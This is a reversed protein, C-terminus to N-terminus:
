VIQKYTERLPEYTEDDFSYYRIIACVRVTESSNFGSKHVTCMPFVILDTPEAILHVKKFNDIYNSSITFSETEYESKKSYQQKPKKNHSGICLEPCGNKISFETFPIVMSIGGKPFHNHNNLSHMDYHWNLTNRKDNPVDLRIVTNRLMLSTKNTKLIQCALEILKKNTAINKVAISTQLIDYIKAFTTKDKKRLEIIKKHLEINNRFSSSQNIFIDKSYKKFLNLITAQCDDILDQDIFKEFKIWGEKNYKSLYKKIKYDQISLNEFSKM